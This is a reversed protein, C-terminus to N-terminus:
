NKLDKLMNPAKAPYLEIEVTGYSLKLIMINSQAFIITELSFFLILLYIFKKM